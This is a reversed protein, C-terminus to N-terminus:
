RIRSSRSSPSRKSTVEDRSLLRHRPAVGDYSAAKALMTSICFDVVDWGVRHRVGTVMGLKSKGCHSKSSGADALSLTACTVEGGRREPAAISGGCNCGKRDSSHSFCPSATSPRKSSSSSSNSSNLDVSPRKPIHMTRYPQLSTPESRTQRAEQM